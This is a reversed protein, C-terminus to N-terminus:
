VIWFFRGRVRSADSPKLDKAMTQLNKQNRMIEALQWLEYIVELIEGARLNNSDRADSSDLVEDILGSSRSFRALLVINAWALQLRAFMILVEPALAVDQIM